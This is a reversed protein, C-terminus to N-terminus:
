APIDRGPRTAPFRTYARTSGAQPAAAADEGGPDEPQYDMLWVGAGIVLMFLIFTIGWIHVTTLVFTSGVMTFLWARRMRDLGPAARFDRRAVRVLLWGFGLFSLVFGPIGHRMTILLWFNDVSASQMFIPRVWYSLGMGFLPHQGVNYLGWEWILARWYTNGTNFVLYSPVAIFVSRDSALELVVYLVASVGILAWWPHKLRGAVLWWGILMFQVIVALYAGSSLSLFVAALFIAAAVWRQWAPVRGKLGVLFFSVGLTAFFGYHIPNVLFTQARALGLRMVPNWVLSPNLGLSRVTDIILHRTTLSEYIAFPLTLTILVGLSKALRVFAEPNRVAARGVFYPGLWELVNSGGFEVLINPNNIWVTLLMWLAFAVQLIDVMNIRGFSGAALMAVAPLITVILYIRTPTLLVSGAYFQVPVLITLLLGLGLMPYGGTPVARGSQTPRATLLEAKLPRDPPPAARAPM